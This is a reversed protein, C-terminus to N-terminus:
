GCLQVVNKTLIRFYFMLQKVTVSKFWRSTYTNTFHLSFVNYM